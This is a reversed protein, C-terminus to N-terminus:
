IRKCLTRKIIVKKAARCYEATKNILDKKKSFSLYAGMIEVVQGRILRTIPGCFAGEAFYHHKYDIKDKLKKPNKSVLIINSPDKDSLYNLIPEFKEESYEPHIVLYITM